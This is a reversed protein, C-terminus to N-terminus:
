DNRRDWLDRKAKGRLGLFEGKPYTGNKNMPGTYERAAQLLQEEELTAQEAKVAATAARREEVRTLVDDDPWPPKPGLGEIYADWDMDKTQAGYKERAEVASTMNATWEDHARKAYVANKYAKVRYFVDPWCGTRESKTVDTPGDPILYVVQEGADEIWRYAVQMSSYYNGNPGPKDWGLADRIARCQMFGKAVAEDVVARDTAVEANEREEREALQKEVMWSTEEEATLYPERMLALYEAKLSDETADPELAILGRLQATISARRKEQGYTKGSPLVTDNIAQEETM